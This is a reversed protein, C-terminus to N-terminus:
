LFERRATIPYKSIGGGLTGSGGTVVAVKGKLDFLDMKKAKLHL